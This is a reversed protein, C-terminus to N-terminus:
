IAAPQLKALVVGVQRYAEGLLQPFVVADAGSLSSGLVQPELIEAEDRFLRHLNGLQAAFAADDASQFRLPILRAKM